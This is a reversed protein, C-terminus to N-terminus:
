HFIQSSQAWEECWRQFSPHQNMREGQVHRHTSSVCKRWVLFGSILFELFFGLGSHFFSRLILNILNTICFTIVFNCFIKHSKCGKCKYSHVNHHLYLTNSCLLFKIFTDSPQGFNGGSAFNFNPTLPFKNISFAFWKSTLIKLPRIIQDVKSECITWINTRVRQNLQTSSQLLDSFHWFILIQIQFCNKNWNVWISVTRLFNFFEKRVEIGRNNTYSCLRVTILCQLFAHLFEFNICALDFKFVFVCHFLAPLWICDIM